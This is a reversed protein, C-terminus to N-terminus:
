GERREQYIDMLATIYDPQPVWQRDEDKHLKIADFDCTTVCLGCGICHDLDVLSSDEVTTNIQSIVAGTCRIHVAM